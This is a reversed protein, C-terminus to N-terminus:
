KLWPHRMHSRAIVEELSYAIGTREFEANAELVDNIQGRVADEHNFMKSLM